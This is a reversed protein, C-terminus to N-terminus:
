VYSKEYDYIAQLKVVEDIAAVSVDHATALDERSRGIKLWGIVHRADMRTYKMTPRGGRVGPAAVVYKGLPYYEYIESVLEQANVM